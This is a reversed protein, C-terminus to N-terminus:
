HQCGLVVVMTVRAWRFVQGWLAATHIHSIMDDKQPMRDVIFSKFLLELALLRCSDFCHHQVTKETCEEKELVFHYLKYQM